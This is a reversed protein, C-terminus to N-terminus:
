VYRSLLQNLKGLIIQKAGTMEIKLQDLSGAGVTAVLFDATPKPIQLHPGPPLCAALVQDVMQFLAQAKATDEDGHGERKTQFWQLFEADRQGGEAYKSDFPSAGFHPSLMDQNRLNIVEWALRKEDPELRKLDNLTAELPDSIDPSAYVVRAKKIAMLEWANAKERYHTTFDEISAVEAGATQGPRMRMDVEYIKEGANTGSMVRRLCHALETIRPTAEAAGDHLMVLDIDSAATLTREGLRGYGILAVNAPLPGHERTSMKQALKMATHLTAEALDAFQIGAAAPDTERRIFYSTIDFHITRHMTRLESLAVSDPLPDINRSALSKIRDTLNKNDFIPFFIQIIQSNNEFSERLVPSVVIIESLVSLKDQNYKLLNLFENKNRARNLMDRFLHRALSEPSEQDTGTLGVQDFITDLQAQYTAAPKFLVSFRDLWSPQRNGTNSKDKDNDAM